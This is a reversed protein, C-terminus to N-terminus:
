KGGAQSGAAQRSRHWFWAAGALGLVAEAIVLYLWLNTVTQTDTSAFRYVAHALVLLCIIANVQHRRSM